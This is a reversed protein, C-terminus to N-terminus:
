PWAVAHLYEPSRTKPGHLFEVTSFDGSRLFNFFQQRTFSRSFTRTPTIFGDSCREGSATATVLDAPGRTSTVLANGQRLGASIKRLLELRIAPRCVTEFVFTALAMDCPIAREFSFFVQGGARRFKRYQVPFRAEIGPMEVVTVRFGELQLFLANRLCGAGVELIHGGEIETLIQKIRARDLVEAHRM